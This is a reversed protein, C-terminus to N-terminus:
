KKIQINETLRLAAKGTLALRNLKAWKTKYFGVQLQSVAKKFFEAAESFRNREFEIRGMLDYYIRNARKNMGKDILEKLEDAISLAEDVSKM